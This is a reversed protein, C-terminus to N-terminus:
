LNCNNSEEQNNRIYLVTLRGYYIYTEISKVTRFNKILCYFYCADFCLLDVMRGAEMKRSM